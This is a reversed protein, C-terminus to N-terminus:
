RQAESEELQPLRLTPLRLKPPETSTADPATIRWQGDQRELVYFSGTAPGGKVPVKTPDGGEIVTPATLFNRVHTVAAITRGTDAALELLSLLRRQYRSYFDNWSEGGPAATAPQQNLLTLFPVIELILQGGFAGLNWPRLEQTPILPAGTVRSLAVSTQIARTLDSSFITDINYKVLRAAIEEAERMGQDDLPVDLWGRLRENEGPLNLSTHGHRILLLKGM